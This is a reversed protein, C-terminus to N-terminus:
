ASMVQRIAHLERRRSEYALWYTADHPHQTALQLADGLRAKAWTLREAFSVRSGIRPLAAFGEKRAHHGPRFRVPQGKVYGRRPDTFQALRTREGCGCQCLGRGARPAASSVPRRQMPRKHHVHHGRRYRRYLGNAGIRTTKGQCGCHCDDPAFACAASCNCRDSM